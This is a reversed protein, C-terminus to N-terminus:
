AALGWKRDCFLWSQKWLHTKQNQSTKDAVVKAGTTLCVDRVLPSGCGRVLWGCGMDLAQSVKMHVQPYYTVAEHCNCLERFGSDSNEGASWRDEIMNMWKLFVSYGRLPKGPPETTLLGGALEPSMLSVPKIGTDALDRPPPFPVGSWYEQRSFGMSLPVQCAVAWSSVSNVHSLLQLHM